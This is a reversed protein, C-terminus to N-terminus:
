VTNISFQAISGVLVNSLRAATVESEEEYSEEEESETEETDVPPTYKETTWTTDNENYAVDTSTLIEGEPITVVKNQEVYAVDAHASIEDIATKSFTGCYGKLSGLGFLHDYPKSSANSGASASCISSVKDCHVKFDPESINEKLVVIYSDPVIDGSKLGGSTLITSSM